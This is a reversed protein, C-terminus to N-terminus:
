KSLVFSISLNRNYLKRNDLSYFYNNFSQIIVEKTFVSRLFTTQKYLESEEDTLSPRVTMKSNDIFNGNENTHGIYEIGFVIGKKPINISKDSL